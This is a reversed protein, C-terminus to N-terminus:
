FLILVPFHSLNKEQQASFESGQMTFQTFLWFLERHILSLKPHNSLILPDQHGKETIFLPIWYDIGASLVGGVSFIAPSM